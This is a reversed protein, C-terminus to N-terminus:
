GFKGFRIALRHEDANFSSDWVAYFKGPAYELLTPYSNRVGTDYFVQPASWDQGREKVQFALARREGKAGPSYVYLYRGLADKGFYAKSCTNWLQTEPQAPAWTRGGDSSTSSYATPLTLAQYVKGYTATRMVIKLEGPAEGEAIGGEHLFVPQELPHPIYGALRWELLNTSELVFHAQDGLPDARLTNRHAPLLYRGEAIKHIGAVTILPLHYDVALPMEMWSLGGDSSYAACLYSDESDRYNLPCRMGFCWIVQQGPPHYLVPNAYAVRQSGVAKTHDFIMVPESWTAGDDKSICAVLNGMDVKGALHEGYAVVLWGPKWIEIFPQWLRNYISPRKLAAVVVVDRVFGTDIKQSSSTEM